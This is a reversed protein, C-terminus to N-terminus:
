TIVVKYYFFFVIYIKIGILTYIHQHIIYLSIYVSLGCVDFIFYVVFVRYVSSNFDHIFSSTHACSYQQTAFCQVSNTCYMLVKVKYVSRMCVSTITIDTYFFFFVNTINRSRDISCDTRIKTM